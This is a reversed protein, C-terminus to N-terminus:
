NGTAVAMRAVAETSDVVVMFGAEVMSVVAATSAAALRDADSEVVSDVALRDVHLAAARHRLGVDASAEAARLVEGAGAEDAGVAAVGTDTAGAM